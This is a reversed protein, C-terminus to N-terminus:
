DECTEPSCPVMEMEAGYVACRGCLMRGRDDLFPRPHECNLPCHAHSCNHIRYWDHETM